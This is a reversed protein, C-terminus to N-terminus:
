VYYTDFANLNVVSDFEDGLPKYNMHLKDLSYQQCHFDLFQKALASLSESYRISSVTGLLCKNEKIAGCCGCFGIVFM